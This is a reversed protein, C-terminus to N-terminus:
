NGGKGKKRMFLLSIYAIIIVLCVAWIILEEPNFGFFPYGLFLRISYFGAIFVIISKAFIGDTGMWAMVVSMVAFYLITFIIIVNLIQIVGINLMSLKPLEEGWNLLKWFLMHFVALALNIAAGSYLIAKKM